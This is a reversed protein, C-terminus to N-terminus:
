RQVRGRRVDTKKWRKRLLFALEGPMMYHIEDVGPSPSWHLNMQIAILM